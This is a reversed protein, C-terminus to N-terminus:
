TPYFNGQPAGEEMLGLLDRAFSLETELAEDGTAGIDSALRNVVQKMLDVADSRNVAYREAARQMGDVMLALSVTRAVAAQSYGHGRADVSIGDATATLQTQHAQGSLDEFDIQGALSLASLAEAEEAEVRLLMAGRRKSLFVSAVEMGAQRLDHDGPFGYAQGLKFGEPLTMLVKLEHAIPCALWPWDDSILEAVDDYEFLSFANGGRLHVMADLLEQGLGMGMGFVTLGLDRGAAAVVMREFETDTTAGVNPQMDTFLMVRRQGEGGAEAAIEFARSLGAEMNTSGNDQLEEIARRIRDQETGPTLTLVTEVDSGFAVIALQDGEGLEAALAGLLRRTLAAPSPDSGEDGLYSWGMSGSVDVCAVVTLPPRTFEEINLSSSLGVQFWAMDRGDLDPALGLGGRLCLTTDCAEGELGLEHESFMGEVSFCEANPVMGNEVLERALGMDQVGGPTAGMGSDMLGGCALPSAWLVVIFLWSKIKM